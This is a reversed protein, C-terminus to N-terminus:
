CVDTQVQLLVKLFQDGYLRFLMALAVCWQGSCGEGCAYVSKTGKWFFVPAGKERSSRNVSQNTTRESSLCPLTWRQHTVDLVRWADIYVFSQHACIFAHTSLMVSCIDNADTHWLNRKKKEPVSAIKDIPFAFKNIQLILLFVYCSLSYGHLICVSLHMHMKEFMM